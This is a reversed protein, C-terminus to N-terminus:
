SLRKLDSHKHVALRLAPRHHDESLASQFDTTTVHDPRLAKFYDTKAEAYDITEEAVVFLIRSRLLKAM